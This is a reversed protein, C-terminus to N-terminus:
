PRLGERITAWISLTSGVALMAVSLMWFARQFKTLRLNRDYMTVKSATVAGVAYLSSLDAAQEQLGWPDLRNWRRPWM